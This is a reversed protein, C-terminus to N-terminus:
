RGSVGSASVAGGLAAGEESWERPYEYPLFIDHFHVIVGPALLPMYDLIIRNVDGGTKVTHTTDVFLVDGAQLDLLTERPVETAPVRRVPLRTRDNPVPDFIEHARGRADHIIESSVGSGLEVVRDPRLERMAGYLLEADVVGFTGTEAPPVWGAAHSVARELWAAQADIDFPIGVMPSRRSWESIPTDFPIPSYFHRKVLQFGRAGAARTLARDVARAGTARARAKWRGGVSAAARRLV